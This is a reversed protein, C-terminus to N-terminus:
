AYPIRRMFREISLGLVLLGLVWEAVYLPDAIPSVYSGFWAERFMESCHLIPNWTLYPWGSLPIMTICFVMGSILRLVRTVMSWFKSMMPFVRYVGSLVFGLGVSLACLEVFALMLELIDHPPWAGEYISIPVLFVWFIAFYICFSALSQALALDVVTVSPFSLLRSASGAAMYVDGIIEFSMLTAVVGLTYFTLPTMGSPPTLGSFVSKMLRMFGIYIVPELVLWVYGYNYAKGRAVLEHVTLATLTNMQARLSLFPTTDAAINTGSPAEGMPPAISM